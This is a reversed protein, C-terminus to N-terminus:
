NDLLEAVMEAANESATRGNPPKLTDALKLLESRTEVLWGVDEMVELTEDILQKESGYWPMLEPILRRGALINVLSFRSTRVLMRYLVNSTIRGLRYFVVMPVGFQAAALTITGSAALAFHAQSITRGTQGVNIQWGARGSGDLAQEILGAIKANGAAFTCTAKPWRRQIAEATAALAATHHRIEAPRSGPLLVVRWSGTAWADLLDPLEDPRPPLDELLPHGVYSAKVHREALWDPEFPLICAVRDTLRALKKVRWPAWAWVQPAIYYCVKAGSNKAADALHWNLAPSDVPVHVDPRIDSIVRRLNRVLRYFYGAKWVAGMLMTAASTLDLGEVAPECGAELMKPGGVGIFRADGLRDRIAAILKGAHM